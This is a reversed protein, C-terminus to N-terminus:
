YTPRTNSTTRVIKVVHLDSVKPNEPSKKGCLQKVVMYAAKVVLPSDRMMRSELEAFSLRVHPETTFPARFRRHPQEFVVLCGDCSQLLDKLSPDSHQLVSHPWWGKLRIVPMIDVSILNHVLKGNVPTNIRLIVNICTKRLSDMDLPGCKMDEVLEIDYENMTIRTNTLSM